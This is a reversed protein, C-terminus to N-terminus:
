NIENLTNSLKEVDTNGHEFIFDFEKDGSHIEMNDLSQMKDFSDTSVYSINKYPMYFSSYIYGDTPSESNSMRHELIILEKKGTIFATKSLTFKKDKLKDMIEPMRKIHIGGQYAALNIDPDEKKIKDFLNSILFDVSEAGDQEYNVPINEAQIDRSDKQAKQGIINVFKMIVQESVTNYVIKITENKTFLILEGRLLAHIDKLALIDDYNIKKEVVSKGARKWIYLNTDTAGILYDYLDMGPKAKTSEIRRPITFLILYDEKEKFDYKFIRPIEHEADIENIWPGFGDYEKDYEMKNEEMICFIYGANEKV